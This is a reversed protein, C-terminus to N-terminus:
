RQLVPIKDRWVFPSGKSYGPLLDYRDFRYHQTLDEVRAHQFGAPSNDPDVNVGGIARVSDYAEVAARANAEGIRGPFAERIERRLETM